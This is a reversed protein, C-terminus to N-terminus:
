SLLSRILSSVEFNGYVYIIEYYLMARGNYCSLLENIFLHKMKWAVLQIVLVNKSFVFLQFANVLLKQGAVSVKLYKFLSKLIETCTM